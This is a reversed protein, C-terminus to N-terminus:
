YNTFPNETRIVRFVEWQDIRYRGEPLITPQEYFGNEKVYCLVYPFIVDDEFGYDPEDTHLNGHEYIFGLDEGFKLLIGSPYVKVQSIAKDSDKVRSFRPDTGYEDKSSFIFSESTHVYKEKCNRVDRKWNLPNYAGIIQGSGEIRMMMLSPGHHCKMTPLLKYASQNYYKDHASISREKMSFLLKFEFPMDFETYPDEMDKGDIWSAILAVFEDDILSQTVPSYMRYPIPNDFRSVRFIEWEQIKYDGITTIVPQGYVDNQSVSCLISDYKGYSIRLGNGFRLVVTPSM